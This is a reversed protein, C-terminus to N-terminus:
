IFMKAMLHKYIEPNEEPSTYAMLLRLSTSNGPFLTQNSSVLVINGDFSGGDMLTIKHGPALMAASYIPGKVTCFDRTIFDKPYKRPFILPKGQNTIFEGEEEKMNYSTMKGFNIGTVTKSTNKVHFNCYLLNSGPLTLYQISLDLGISLQYELMIGRFNENLVKQKSQKAKPKQYELIHKGPFHEDITHIFPTIGGTYPYFFSFNTIEPYTSSLIKIGENEKQTNTNVEKAETTREEALPDHKTIQTISGSFNQRVKLNLTENDITIPDKKGAPKDVTVKYKNSGTKIMPLDFEHIRDGRVKLTYNEVRQGKFNVPIEVEPKDERRSLYFYKETILDGDQNLVRYSGSFPKNRRTTLRFKTKNVPSMTAKVQPYLQLEGGQVEQSPTPLEQKKKRYFHYEVPSILQEEGASLRFDERVVPMLTNGLYVDAKQSFECSIDREPFSITYRPETFLDAGQPFDRKTVPFAGPLIDEILPGDKLPASIKMNPRPPVFAEIQTTISKKRSVPNRVKGSVTLKGQPSLTLRTIIQLDQYKESKFQVEATNQHVTCDPIKRGFEHNHFPPGPIVSKGQLLKGSEKSQKDRILFKDYLSYAGSNKDVELLYYHTEVKLKNETQYGYTIATGQNQSRAKQYPEHGERIFVPIVTNDEQTETIYPASRLEKCNSYLALEGLGSKKAALKIPLSIKDEAELLLSFTLAHMETNRLNETETITQLKSCSKSFQRRNTKNTLLTPKFHQSSWLQIYIELSKSTNNSVTIYTLDEEGTTLLPVPEEEFSISFPHVIQKSTTLPIEREDSFKIISRQTLIIDEVTKGSNKLKGPTKLISSHSERLQTEQKGQHHQHIKPPFVHNETLNSETQNNEGKDKLTGKETISTSTVIQDFNEEWISYSDPDEAPRDADLGPTIILNASVQDPNEKPVSLETRCSLQPTKFAAIEQTRRDVTAEWHINGKQFRYTLLETTGGPTFDEMFPPNPIISKQWSYKKFYNTLVPYNLLLPIYSELRTSRGEKIWFFGLDKYLPLAKHNGPWTRLDVRHYGLLTTEYIAKELLARAVGQRYFKPRVNLLAIYGVNIEHPHPSYELLGAVEETSNCVALWIFTSDSEKLIQSIDEIRLPIGQNLSRPWHLDSEEIMTKISSLYKSDYDTIKFEM